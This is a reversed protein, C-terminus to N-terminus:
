PLGVAGSEAHTLTEWAMHHTADTPRISQILKLTEPLSQGLVNAYANYGIEWMPDASPKNQATTCLSGTSGSNIYKAHLELFAVLRKEELSFLDVGQIRATEAANIIAATGYQQHGFAQTGTGSTDRCTEQGIGDIFAAPNYWYGKLDSSSLASQRPPQVPLAGDTALYVYAPTRAKWLEVTNQFEVLDDNFVAINMAADIASTDWNGTRTSGDKVEPYYAVTLM